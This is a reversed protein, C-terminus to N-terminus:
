GAFGALAVGLDPQALSYGTDSADVAAHLAAAVPPALPYDMEAVFLPLVDDPYTRWKASRRGRLTELPDVHMLEARPSAIRYVVSHRLPGEVTPDEFDDAPDYSMGLRHMVARSRDNGVATIALIEALGLM